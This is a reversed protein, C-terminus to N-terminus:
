SRRLLFFGGVIVVLGIGLFTFIESSSETSDALSAVAKTLNASAASLASSGAQATATAAQLQSKAVDASTTTLNTGIAGIVAALDVADSGTLGIGGGINTITSINTKNTKQQISETKSKSGM